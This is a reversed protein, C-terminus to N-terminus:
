GEEVTLTGKMSYHGPGCPINCMYTFAGAKDAVFEVLTTQGPPLEESIGFASLAFGHRVDDAPVTIRIRVHDGKKVSLMGPDFSSSNATM